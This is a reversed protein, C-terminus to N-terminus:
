DNIEKIRHKHLWMEIGGKHLYLFLDIRDSNTLKRLHKNLFRLVNAETWAGESVVVDSGPGQSYGQWGKSIGNNEWAFYWVKEDPGLVVFKRSQDLLRETEM